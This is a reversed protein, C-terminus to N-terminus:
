NASIDLAAGFSAIESLESFAVPVTESLAYLEQRLNELEQTGLGDGALIREVSSYAKEQQAYSILAAAGVGAIAASVTLLSSAMDYSAYRANEMSTGMNRTGVAAAATGAAYDALTNGGARMQANVSRFAAANTMMGTGLTRGAVQARGAAA